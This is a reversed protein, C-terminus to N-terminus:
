SLLKSFISKARGPFAPGSAKRMTSPAMAIPAGRKMRKRSAAGARGGDAVIAFVITQDDENIRALGDSAGLGLFRKRAGQSRTPEVVWPISDRYDSTLGKAAFVKM